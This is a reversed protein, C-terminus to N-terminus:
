KVQYGRLVQHYTLVSILLSAGEWVHVPSLDASNVDEDEERKKKEKEFGEM